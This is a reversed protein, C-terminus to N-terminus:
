NSQNSENHSKIKAVLDESLIIKFANDIEQDNLIAKKIKAKDWKLLRVKTETKVTASPVMGTLYSMEGIFTGENIVTIFNNKVYISSAGETILYFSDIEKNEEILIQNSELEINEALKIIRKFIIKDTKSFNRYYIVQEFEELFLTKREHFLKVFYFGNILILPVTWIIPTWLPEGETHYFDYYLEFFAALVFSARIYIQERFSSGVIYFFSAIHGIIETFM